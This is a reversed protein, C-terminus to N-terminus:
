TPAHHRNEILLDLLQIIETETHDVNLSIRIRASHPPVTPPRIAAVFIGHASLSEQLAITQQNNGSLICKIPSMDTSVLPLNRHAAEQHFFAILSHLHTVRWPESQIIHLAQLAANCIAPPMATSYCYTRAKQILFEIIEDSGSVIAGMGGLAKGLPTILVPIDAATLRFHEATGKGHEGLIGFGHADDVLLTANYQKALAALQNTKTISGSMSFISETIILASQKSHKQLLEHAHDIDDHRYRYHPARALTIADIISAHVHKDAIVPHHRDAFATVVGLNAHYGSNFFLSRERGLFAAFQEELEHHIRSYGSILASSGSGFGFEKAGEILADQVRQDQALGLYDNGAFNIMRQQDIVLTNNSRESVIHRKRILHAKNLAALKNIFTQM